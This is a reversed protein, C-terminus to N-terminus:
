CTLPALLGNPLRHGRSFRLVQNQAHGLTLPPQITLASMKSGADFRLQRHPHGRHVLSFEESVNKSPASEELEASRSVASVPVGIGGLLLVIALPIAGLRRAAAFNLRESNMAVKMAPQM